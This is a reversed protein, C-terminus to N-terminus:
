LFFQAFLAAPRDPSPGARGSCRRRVPRDGFFYPCGQHGGGLSLPRRFPEGRRELSSTDSPAPCLCAM